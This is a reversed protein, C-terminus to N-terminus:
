SRTPRDIGNAACRDFPDVAPNDRKFDISPLVLGCFRNRRCETMHYSSARELVL